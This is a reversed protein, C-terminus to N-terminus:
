NVSGSVTLNYTATETGDPIIFQASLVSGGSSNSFDGFWYQQFNTTNITAPNNPSLRNLNISIQGPQDDGPVPVMIFYDSYAFQAMIVLDKLTETTGYTFNNSTVITSTSGPLLTGGIANNVYGNTLLNGGSDTQAAPGPVGQDGTTAGQAGELGM